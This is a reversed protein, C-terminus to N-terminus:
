IDNRSHLGSILGTPPFKKLSEVIAADQVSISIQPVLKIAGDKMNEM